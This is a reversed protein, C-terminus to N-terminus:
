VVGAQRRSWDPGAIGGFRASKLSASRAKNIKKVARKWDVARHRGPAADDLLFRVTHGLDKDPPHRSTFHEGALHEADACDSEAFKASIAAAAPTVTWTIFWAFEGLM